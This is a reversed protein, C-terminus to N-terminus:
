WVSVLPDAIRGMPLEHRDPGHTAQLEDLYSLQDATTIQLKPRSSVEHHVGNEEYMDATTQKEVSSAENHPSVTEVEQAQADSTGKEDQQKEMVVSYKQKVRQALGSSSSNRYEPRLHRHVLSGKFSSPLCYKDENWLGASTQHYQRELRGM